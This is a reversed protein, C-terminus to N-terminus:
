ANVSGLMSLANRLLMSHSTSPVPPLTTMPRANAASTSRTLRSASALVKMKRGSAIENTPALTMQRKTYAQRGGPLRLDADEVGDDGAEAALREGPQLRGGTLVSASITIMTHSCVPKAM